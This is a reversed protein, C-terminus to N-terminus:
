RVRLVASLILVSNIRNTEWKIHTYALHFVRQKSRIALVWEGMGAGRGPLLSHDELLGVDPLSAKGAGAAWAAASDRILWSKQELSRGKHSGPLPPENSLPSKSICSCPLLALSCLLTISSPSVTLWANCPSHLVYRPQWDEPTVSLSESLCCSILMATWVTWPLPWVSQWSPPVSISMCKCLAVNVHGGEWFVVGTHVAPYPQVWDHLVECVNVAEDKCVDLVRSHVVAHESGNREECVVLQQESEWGAPSVVRNVCGSVGFVNVSAWGPAYRPRLVLCSPVPPNVWRM